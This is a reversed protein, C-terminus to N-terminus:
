KTANLLEPNELINGIVELPEENESEIFRATGHFGNKLYNNLDTEWVVNFRCYEKHYVIFGVQYENNDSKWRVIDWEFIEKGNKDTRGTYQMLTEYSLGLNFVFDRISSGLPLSYIKGVSQDYNHIMIKKDKDYARFKFERM